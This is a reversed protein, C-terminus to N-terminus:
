SSCIEHETGVQREKMDQTLKDQVSIIKDSLRTKMENRSADHM